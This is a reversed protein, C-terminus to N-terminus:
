IRELKKIVDLIHEELKFVDSVHNKSDLEKLNLKNLTNKVGPHGLTFILQYDNSDLKLGLIIHHIAKLDYLVRKNSPTGLTLYARASFAHAIINHHKQSYTTPHPYFNDNLVRIVNEFYKNMVKFSDKKKTRYAEDRYIFGIKILSSAIHIKAKKSFDEDTSYLLAKENLEISRKFNSIRNYEKGRDHEWYALNNYTVPDKHNLKLANEFSSRGAMDDNLHKFEFDGKFTWALVNEPFRTVAQTVWQHAETIEGRKIFLEARQFINILGIDDSFVYSQCKNDLNCESPIKILNQAEIFEDEVEPMEQIKINVYRNIPPLITLKSDILVEDLLFSHDQLDDRAINFDANSLNVLLKAQAFSLNGGNFAIGMLLKKSTDHLENWQYNCIFNLANESDKPMNHTMEDFNYGSSLLSVFYRILLPISGTLERIKTVYSKTKYQHAIDIRNMENVILEEAELVEMARINLRQDAYGGRTRSTILIKLETEVEDGMQILFNWVEDKESVTELNDLVFLTSEIKNLITIVLRKKTKLDENICNLNNTVYLISDLLDNLTDFSQDKVDISGDKFYEVKGTIWIVYNFNLKIPVDFVMNKEILSWIVEKATESKGFGGGGDLTTIFLRRHSLKEILKAEIEKRHVYYELKKPLNHICGDEIKIKGFKQEFTESQVIADSIEFIDILKEYEKKWTKLGGVTPLNEFMAKEKKFSNYVFVRNDETSYDVLNTPYRFPNEDQYFQIHTRGVQTIYEEQFDFGVKTKNGDSYVIVNFSKESISILKIVRINFNNFTIELNSIIFDRIGTDVLPQLKLNDDWQHSRFNRLLRMSELIDSMVIKKPANYSENSILSHIQILINKATEKDSGELKKQLTSNLKVAFIDGENFLFESSLKGLKVWSDFTPKDFYDNIINLIEVPLLSDSNKTHHFCRIFFLIGVTKFFEETLRNLSEILEKNSEVSRVEQVAGILNLPYSMMIVM